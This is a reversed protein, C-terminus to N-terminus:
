RGQPTWGPRPPQTRHTWRAGDWYRQGRGSPDRYWGPPPPGVARPAASQAALRRVQGIASINSILAVWNMVLM